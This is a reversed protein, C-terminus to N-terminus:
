LYEWPRPAPLPDNEFVRRGDPEAAILRGVFPMRGLYGLDCPKYCLGLPRNDVGSSPDNGRVSGLFEQLEGFFYRRRHGISEHAQGPERAVMRKEQAHEAHMSGAIGIECNSFTVEQDAEGGAEVVPDHHVDVVESRTGRYDMDVDIRSFDSLHNGGINGQYAIRFEHQLREQRKKLFRVTRLPERADFLKFGFIREGVAAIAAELRLENDLLKPIARLAVSDNSGIDALVLHPHSLEVREGFRAGQHRGPPSPHM